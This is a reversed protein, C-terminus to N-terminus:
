PSTESYSRLLASAASGKANLQLCIMNYGSAGLFSGSKTDALVQHWTTGDSGVSYTATTGDDKLQYWVATGYALALTAETSGAFTTSNTMDNIAFEFLGGNGSEVVGALWLKASGAAGTNRWTMGVWQDSAAAAPQIMDVRATITYPTAPANKCLGRLTNAGSQSSDSLLIGDNTNTATATGQSDAWTTLGTSAMTPAPTGGGGSKGGVIAQAHAGLTPLCLALLLGLYRRTM